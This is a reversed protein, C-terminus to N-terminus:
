TKHRADIGALREVKEIYKEPRFKRKLGSAKMIRVNGFVPNVNWARDHLGFIWGINAYGNPDRGDLFYKDNLYVLRKYAEEPSPSWELVKKGWYMRMYNHMFGTVIMEKMCANWYIDNTNCSELKKLSYIEPRPDASHRSLTKRAWDPLCDFSDYIPNFNVFNMSLERRVILEEVYVSVAESNKKESIKLLLWLPSIQGFHLYMSMHSIDDKDPQNRNAVYDDLRKETFESFRKIAQSTGGRFFHPVPKVSNDINLKSTLIKLDSLDEGKVPLNVSSVLIKQQPLDEMYSDLLRHIKPRITRAGFEHKQSVKEVPVVVDAEVEYVLCEAKEGVAKRWMKQHRLYGRDCVILSADKGYKLAVDPPNGFELIFRINREALSKETEQLGELMFWYHRLNAGPYHDMLGFVVLLGSKLRNAESIAFELAHNFFSRQSQQMWYMVYKGAKEPKKNIIKVRGSDQM